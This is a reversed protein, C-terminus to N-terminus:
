PQQLYGKWLSYIFTSGRPIEPFDLDFTSHRAPLVYNRPNALLEERSIENRLFSVYLESRSIKNLGAENFFVPVAGAGKPSIFGEGQFMHMVYATYLDPVFTRGSIQSANIFSKLRDLHQPSFIGFVLGPAAAFHKALEQELETESTGKDRNASLNTGEMLLVDIRKGLLDRELTKLLNEQRGHLRLDGSYFIRRDNSEILFALCGPASHNVEFSTIAIDGIRIRQRNRLVPRV